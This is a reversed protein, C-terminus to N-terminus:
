AEGWDLLLAVVELEDRKGECNNIFVALDRGWAGSVTEGDEFTTEGQYLGAFIQRFDYGM